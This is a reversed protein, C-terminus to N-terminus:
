NGQRKSPVEKPAIVGVFITIILASSIAEFKAVRHRQIRLMQNIHKKHNRKIEQHYHGQALYRHTSNHKRITKPSALIHNNPTIGNLVTEAERGEGLFADHEHLV